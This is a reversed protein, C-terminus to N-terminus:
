KDFSLKIRKKAQGWSQKAKKPTEADGEVLKDKAENYKGDLDERIENEKTKAWENIAKIENEAEKIKSSFMAINNTHDIFDFKQEDEEYGSIMGKYTDINEQCKDHATQKKEMEEGLDNMMKQLLLELKYVIANLVMTAHGSIVEESIEALKRKYDEYSMPEEWGKFSKHNSLNEAPDNLKKAIHNLAEKQKDSVAAGVLVKWVDDSIGSPAEAVETDEEDSDGDEEESGNSNNRNSNNRQQQGARTDTRKPENRTCQKNTTGVGCKLNNIRCSQCEKSKTSAMIVQNPCPIKKPLSQPNKHCFKDTGDCKCRKNSSTCSDCSTCEGKKPMNYPPALLTTCLRRSDRINYVQRGSSIVIGAALM